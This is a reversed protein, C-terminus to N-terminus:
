PTITSCPFSPLSELKPSKPSVMSCLFSISISLVLFMTNPISAPYFLLYFSLPPVHQSFLFFLFASLILDPQFSLYSCYPSACLNALMLWQTAGNTWHPQDESAPPHQSALTGATTDVSGLRADGIMSLSFCLGLFNYIHQESIPTHRHLILSTLLKSSYSASLSWSM